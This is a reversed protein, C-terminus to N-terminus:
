VALAERVDHLGADFGAHPSVGAPQPCLLGSSFRWATRSCARSCLFNRVAAMYMRHSSAEQHTREQGVCLAKKHHADCRTRLQPM